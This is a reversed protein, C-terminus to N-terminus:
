AQDCTGTDSSFGDTGGYEVVRENTKGDLRQVVTVPKCGVMEPLWIAFYNDSTSATGVQDDFTIEIQANAAKWGAVFPVIRGDVLKISDAWLVHKHGHHSRTAFFEAQWTDAKKSLLCTASYDWADRDYFSVALDGREDILVHFGELWAVVEENTDPLMGPKIMSRARLACLQNATEASLTPSSNPESAWSAPTPAIPTYTNLSVALVAAAAAPVSLLALGTRRRNRRPRFPTTMELDAFSSRVLDATEQELENLENLENNM